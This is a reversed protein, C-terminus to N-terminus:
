FLLSCVVAALAMFAAGKPVGISTAGSGDGSVDVVDNRLRPFTANKNTERYLNTQNFKVCQGVPQL